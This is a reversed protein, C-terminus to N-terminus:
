VRAMAQKTTAALLAAPVLLIGCFVALWHFGLYALVPGAATGSLSALVGMTLDDSGGQLGAIQHDQNLWWAAEPLVRDRDIVIRIKRRRVVVQSDISPQLPIEAGVGHDMDALVAVQFPERALVEAHRRRTAGVGSDARQWQDIREQDVIGAFSSLGLAPRMGRDNIM